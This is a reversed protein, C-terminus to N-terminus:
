RARHPQEDGARGPEEAPARGHQQALATVLHDRDRARAADLARVRGAEVCDLEIGAPGLDPLEDGPAIGHEVEGPDGVRGPRALVRGPRDPLVGARRDVQELCAQLM